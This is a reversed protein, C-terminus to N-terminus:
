SARQRRALSALRPWGTRGRGAACRARGRGVDEVEQPQHGVPPHQGVEAEGVHQEVAGVAVAVAPPQHHAVDARHGALRQVDGVPDARPGVLRLDRHEAPGVGRAVPHLALDGHLAHGADGPHEGYRHPALTADDRHQRLLPRRPGAALRALQLPGVQGDEIAERLHDGLAGERELGAAAGGRDGRPDTVAHHDHVGVSAHLVRGRVRDRRQVPDADAGVGDPLAQGLEAEVVGRDPLGEFPALRDDLLDVLGARHGQEGAADGDHGPSGDGTAHQQQAVHALQALTIAQQQRLVRGDALDM